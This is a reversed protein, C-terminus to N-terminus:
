RLPRSPQDPSEPDPGGARELDTSSATTAAVAGGGGIGTVYEPQTEACTLTDPHVLVIIQCPSGHANGLVMLFM